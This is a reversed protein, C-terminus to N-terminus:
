VAEYLLLRQADLFMIMLLFFYVFLFEYVLDYVL